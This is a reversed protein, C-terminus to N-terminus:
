KSGRSRFRPNPYVECIQKYEEQLDQERVCGQTLLYRNIIKHQTTMQAM